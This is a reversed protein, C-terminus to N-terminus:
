AAKRSFGFVLILAAGAVIFPLMRVLTEAARPLEKAVAEAAGKIGRGMEAVFQAAEEIAAVIARFNRAFVGKVVQGASFLLLDAEQAERAIIAFRPRAADLEGLTIIGQQQRALWIATLSNAKEAVDRYLKGADQPPFIGQEGVARAAEMERRMSAFVRETGIILERRAEDKERETPM